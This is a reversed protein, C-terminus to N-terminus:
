RVLIKRGRNLYLGPRSTDTVRRGDITYWAGTDSDTPVAPINEAGSDEAFSCLTTLASSARGNSPDFLPANYWGSLDTGYPNYEMWWWFIGTVGTYKECTEVLDKMFQNQGADSIPWKDTTDHDAGPVQWKLGYGTEVIMIEKDRYRRSLQQLTSNLVSMDGHWYPYYSLGIIDFPVDMEKMKDYFNRSVSLNAVRETHIIIRADPCIEKCAGIASKLLRGLRDWNADSGSLVKQPNRTGWSGWLMGYSIENGPQIFTPTVGHARLTELCSKTYDHIKEVLQDDTLGEWEIPTWQKNPDAWTDSYHFDLLLDLGSEVIRKCLPIIYELSQCANPDYRDDVDADNPHKQKYLEPNVFLRVRMANMGQERCWPLLDAIPRGHHDSYKAGAQEYEPLLSIDGGAYRTASLSLSGLFVAAAAIILKPLYKM